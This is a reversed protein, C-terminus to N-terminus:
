FFCCSTSLNKHFKTLLHVNLETKPNIQNWIWSNLSEKMQSLPCSKGDATKIITLLFNSLSWPTCDLYYLINTVIQVQQSM